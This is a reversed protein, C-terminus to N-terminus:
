GIREADRLYVVEGGVVTAVVNLERDLLFWIVEIAPVFTQGTRRGMGISEAPTRSSTPWAKALSWGSATMFNKLAVDMTLMSGALTGSALRCQGDAVFVPQGGLEYEGDPMGAARMADTILM